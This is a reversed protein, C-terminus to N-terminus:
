GAPQQRLHVSLRQSMTVPQFILLKGGQDRRKSVIDAYEEEEVLDYVAEEEKCEYLDSAKSGGAKIAALRALAAAAKSPPRAARRSRGAAEM